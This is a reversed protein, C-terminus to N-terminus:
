FITATLVSGPKFRKTSAGSSTRRLAREEKALEYGVLYGFEPDAKTATVAQAMIAYLEPTWHHAILSYSRYSPELVYGARRIAAIYEIPTLLKSKAVPDALAAPFGTVLGVAAVSAARGFFHRRSTGTTPASAAM